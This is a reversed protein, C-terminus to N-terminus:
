LGLILTRVFIYSNLDKYFKIEQFEAVLVADDEIVVVWLNPQIFHFGVISPSRQHEPTRVEGWGVLKM